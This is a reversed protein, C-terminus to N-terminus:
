SSRISRSMIVYELALEKSLAEVNKSVDDSTLIGAIEGDSDLVVLRRVRNEKMMELACEIEDEEDIYLVPRSCIDIAKLSKADAGAALVRWVLDRETVIGIPKTGEVVIVSSISNDRMLQAVKTVPTDPEATVPNQTM